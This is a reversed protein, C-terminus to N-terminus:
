LEDVLEVYRKIIVEWDHQAAWLKAEDGFRQPAALLQNLAIEFADIDGLDVLFGSQGHAIADEIGCGKAGITPIGLANAELLAIGFGEVDGTTTTTSLMVFVDSDTLVAKLTDNSVRGHFFVHKAVGLRSALAECAVQATPLGVCHYAIEPYHKVLDPLLKIVELQGKRESVHGVTILKPSGQLKVDIPTNEDWKQANFGNPIVISKSQFDPKLLSKTFHSVSILRTFSQLAFDVSKRLVSQSFNVETGHVVAITPTNIFKRCLAVSWLSFKGSAIVLDSMKMYKRLTSIRRGYMKFRPSSIPIREILFPQKTDFDSEEVGDESRCDAIVRVSFGSRSLYYAVNYAHDGIGGPQPPFESTVILISKTQM